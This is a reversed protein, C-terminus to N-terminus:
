VSRSVASRDAVIRLIFLTKPYISAVHRCVRETRASPPSVPNEAFGYSGYQAMDQRRDRDDRLSSQEPPPSVTPICAIM